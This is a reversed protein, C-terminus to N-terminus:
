RGGQDRVTAGKESGAFGKQGRSGERMWCGSVTTRPQLFSPISVTFVVALERDTKKVRYSPPQPPTEPRGPVEAIGLVPADARAM